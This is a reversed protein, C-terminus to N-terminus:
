GAGGGVKGTPPGGFGRLIIDAGPPAGVGVVGVVGGGALTARLLMKKQGYRDGLRGWLPAALAMTVATATNLLGAWAAAQGADEVGLRQVYLPLFPMVFMFGTTAALQSILLVGFSLM